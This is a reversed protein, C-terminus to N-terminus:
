ERGKIEGVLVILSGIMEVLLSLRIADKGTCAVLFAVLAVLGVIVLVLLLAVAFWTYEIFPEDRADRIPKQRYEKPVVSRTM